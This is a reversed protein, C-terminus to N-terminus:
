RIFPAQDPNAIDLLIHRTLPRLDPQALIAEASLFGVAAIEDGDTRLHGGSVRGEVLLGVGYVQDGNSYRGYMMAPDSYVGLTRVLEIELGTEEQVERIATHTATEGLDSFGGPLDWVPFERRKVVLIHGQEDRVLAVAGPLIIPDRPIVKRLIPFYPQTNGTTFPEELVMGGTQSQKVDRLIRDFIPNPHPLLEDLFKFEVSLTEKGDPLVEGGTLRCVFAVAWPQVQDGHPYRIIYDPHSYVGLLREIQIEVGCEERAERLMCQSITEHIEKAGGVLDWWDFEYRRQVLVRGEPDFIVGVAYVLYILQHGVRQRIYKIYGDQHVLL